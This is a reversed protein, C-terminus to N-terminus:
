LAKCLSVGYFHLGTLSWLSQKHAYPQYFKCLSNTLVYQDYFRMLVSPKESLGTKSIHM